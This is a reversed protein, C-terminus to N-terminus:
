PAHLLALLSDVATVAPAAAGDYAFNAYADLGFAVQLTTAGSAPEGTPYLATTITTAATSNVRVAWPRLALWFLRGEILAGDPGDSPHDRLSVLYHRVGQAFVELVVSDIHELLADLEVNTGVPDTAGTTNAAVITRAEIFHAELDAHFAAANPVYEEAAGYLGVHSGDPARVFSYLAYARDLGERTREQLAEYMAFYIYTLPLKELGEKAFDLDRAATPSAATVSAGLMLAAQYQTDLYLGLGSFPNSHIDVAGQFASQLSYTQGPLNGTYATSLAAYDTAASTPTVVGSAEGNAAALQVEAVQGAYSQPDFPHYSPAPDSCGAVAGFALTFALAPLRFSPMTIM